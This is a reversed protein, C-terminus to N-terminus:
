LHLDVSFARPLLTSDLGRRALLLWLQGPHTVDDDMIVALQAECFHRVVFTAVWGDFTRIFLILIKM